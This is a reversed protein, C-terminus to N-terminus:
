HIYVCEPMLLVQLRGIMAHSCSRFVGELSKIDYLPTGVEKLVIRYHYHHQIDVGSFTKNGSPKSPHRPPVGDDRLGVSVTGEPEDGITMCLLNKTARLGNLILNKTNDAVDGVKVIGYGVTTFLHRKLTKLTEDETAFLEELITHEQDRNEDIWMDKVLVRNKNKNLATWIRTARGEVEESSINHIVKETSYWEGGVRIDYNSTGKRKISKDWGLDTKSSFCM